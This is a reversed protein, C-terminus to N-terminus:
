QIISCRKPSSAVISSYYHSRYQGLMCRRMYAAPTCHEDEASMFVNLHPPLTKERVKRDLDLIVQYSPPEATLTLELVQSLIDRAFEYKWQFYGVQPKGEEDVTPEDDTPFECDIYSTRLAPPRGMALSHFQESTFIEWFLSRRRDVTKADFDWRSSDRHLGISQALKAGLSMVSWASDLTYRKGAFTQYHAVLAVTQVTCTEPSDFVSRLSIAARCLLAFREAESNFPELTLDVLAGIAFVIYLTALRHPSITHPQNVDSSAREKHSRYVPVLIDDILEDRRIPQFQWTAQQLYTECLAWARPQEPLHSFLMDMTKESNAESSMPFLNSLRLIDQTLATPQDQDDDTWAPEMEAGALLLTESGASRGFYKSQGSDFITLTGFADISEVSPDRSRHSKPVSGNEPGFKISLLEERLLPHQENSVGSQSIALADELQRIRQGMETIKSHLQSTDALVFRTGQGAAM